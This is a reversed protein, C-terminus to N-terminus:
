ISEGQKGMQLKLLVYQTGSGQSKIVVMHQDEKTGAKLEIGEGNLAATIDTAEGHECVAPSQSGRDYHSTHSGGQVRCHLVAGYKKVQPDYFEFVKQPPDDTDFTAVALNMGFMSMNVSAGSNDNKNEHHPRSGPYVNFGTTQANPDTEIHTSGFPTKVDVTEPKGQANKKTTVSCAALLLAAAMLVAVVTPNKARLM